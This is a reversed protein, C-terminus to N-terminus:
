GARDKWDRLHQKCCFHSDGESVAETAPVYTKCTLCQVTNTSSSAAPKKQKALRASQMRQRIILAVIIVAAVIILNRLM